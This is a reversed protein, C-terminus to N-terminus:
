LLSYIWNLQVTIHRPGCQKRIDMLSNVHAMMSCAHASLYPILTEVVSSKQPMNPANFKFTIGLGERNADRQFAKNDRANDLHIYKIIINHGKCRKIFDRLVRSLESKKNLFWSLKM